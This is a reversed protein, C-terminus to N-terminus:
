CRVLKILQDDITDDALYFVLVSREKRSGLLKKEEEYRVFGRLLSMLWFLLPSHVLSQLEDFSYSLM